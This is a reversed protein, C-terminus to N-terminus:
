LRDSKGKGLEPDAALLRGGEREARLKAEAGANQLELGAGAKKACLRFAEAMDVVQKADVPTEIAAVAALLNLPTIGGAGALALDSM